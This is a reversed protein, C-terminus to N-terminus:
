PAEKTTKIIDQLTVLMNTTITCDREFSISDSPQNVVITSNQGSAATSMAGSSSYHLRGYKTNIADLRKQYADNTEQIVKNNWADTADAKTKAVIAETEIKSKFADYKTSEYYGYGWGTLAFLALGIYLWGKIPIM